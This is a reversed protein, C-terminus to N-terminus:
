NWWNETFKIEDNTKVVSPWMFYIAMNKKEQHARRVRERQNAQKEKMVEVIPQSEIKLELNWVSVCM